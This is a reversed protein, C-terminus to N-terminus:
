AIGWSMSFLNAKVLVLVPVSAYANFVQPCTALTIAWPLVLLSFLMSVFGFQEYQFHRMLKLPWASTGMVLGSVAVVLAGAILGTEMPTLKGGSSAERCRHRRRKPRPEACAGPADLGASLLIAM